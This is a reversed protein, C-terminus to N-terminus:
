TTEGSVMNDKCNRIHFSESVGKWQGFSPIGKWKGSFSYTEGSLSISCKLLNVNSEELFYGQLSFLFIIYKM